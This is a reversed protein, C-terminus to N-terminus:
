AKERVRVNWRRRESEHEMELDDSWDDSGVKDYRQEGMLQWGGREDIEM